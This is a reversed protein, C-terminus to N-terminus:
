FATYLQTSRFTYFNGKKCLSQAISKQPRGYWRTDVSGIHSLCNWYLLMSMAHGKKKPKKTCGHQSWRIGFCSVYLLTLYRSLHKMAVGDKTDKSDSCIQNVLKSFSVEAPCITELVSGGASRSVKVRSSFLFLIKCVVLLTVCHHSLVYYEQAGTNSNLLSTKRHSQKQNTTQWHLYETDSLSALLCPWSMFM